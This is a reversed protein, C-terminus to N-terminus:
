LEQVRHERFRVGRARDCVRRQGERHPRVQGCADEIAREGRPLEALLPHREHALHAEEVRRSGIRECGVAVRVRLTSTTATM